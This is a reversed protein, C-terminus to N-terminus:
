AQWVSVGITDNSWGAVPRHDPNAHGSLSVRAPGWGVAGSRLIAVAAMKAARVAEVVHPLSSDQGQPQLAELDAEASDHFVDVPGITWSM